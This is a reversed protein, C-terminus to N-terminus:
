FLTLDDGESLARLPINMDALVGRMWSPPDFMEMSLTYCYTIISIGAESTTMLAWRFFMPKSAPLEVDCVFEDEDRVDQLYALPFNSRILQKSGVMEVTTPCILREQM